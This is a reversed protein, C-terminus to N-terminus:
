LFGLKRHGCSIINYMFVLVVLTGCSARAVAFSFHCGDRRRNAKDTCEIDNCPLNPMQYCGPDNYLMLLLM